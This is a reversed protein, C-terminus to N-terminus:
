PHRGPGVSRLRHEVREAVALIYPERLHRVRSTPTDSGHRRRTEALREAVTVRQGRPGATQDAYTVADTLPTVAFSYRALAVRLGLVAAVFRAGSHHAVLEAVRRDGTAELHRAGDLSHLGTRALAPAYGIDHLWVAALLLRRDEPAVTYQIEGARAAAAEVHRWRDPGARLLLARARRRAGEVEM